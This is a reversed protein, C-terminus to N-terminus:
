RGARRDLERQANEVDAIPANKWTVGDRIQAVASTSIGFMRGLRGMSVTPLLAKIAGADAETIKAQPRDEGLVFTGHAMADAVNDCGTGYRLNSLRNNTPDGDGHLPMQGEPCPGVFAECVLQHIKRIRSGSMGSSLSVRLYGGSKAKVPRLMRGRMRRSVTRSRDPGRAIAQVVVRDLSRVRGQDSVEYEGERGVVPKWMESM